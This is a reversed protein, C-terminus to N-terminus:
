GVTATVAKVAQKVEPTVRQNKDMWGEALLTTRVSPTLVQATGSCLRVLSRYAAPSSKCLQKVKACVQDALDKERKQKEKYQALKVKATEEKKKALRSALEEVTIAFPEILTALMRKDAGKVTTTAHELQHSVVFFGANQITELCQNINSLM